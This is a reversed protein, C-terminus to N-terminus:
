FAWRFRIFESLLLAYLLLSFFTITYNVARNRGLLALTIFIPFMALTYRPISLWFWTSTVVIWSALAYFCYSLRIRFFSYVILALGTLAFAIEAWGSIITERPARVTMTEWSYMFGNYPFDLRKSWHSNQVDLFKFPDGFTVYNIGLYFILGLATAGIWLVDKRVEKIRYNRQSLYELILAPLLIIGTIRTAAALMGAAGALGWKGKRAYYFCAISLFIFLSETYVAHLFYATPFISMYIGARFADEEDYELRVLKFLYIVAGAFALNSVILGALIYDGVIFAVLRIAYPYLPFFVIQLNREDETSSTYGYQALEVYHQADWTYWLASLISDPYTDSLLIFAGYAFLFTGIISIIIILGLDILPREHKM